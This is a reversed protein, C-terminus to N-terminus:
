EAPAIPRLRRPTSGPVLAAVAAGLLFGLTVLALGFVNVGFDDAYVGTGLDIWSPFISVGVASEITLLVGFLLGPWFALHFSLRRATPIWSLLFIPALGMVMTGSITTAAIVAPGARDGLYISFLPLNGLVAIALIIYRGTRMRRVTPDETQPGAHWDRVVLKSTSSFTSDLTSGASTLM